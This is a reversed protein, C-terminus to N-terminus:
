LFLTCVTIFVLIADHYALRKTPSVCTSSIPMTFWVYVGQFYENVVDKDSPSTWDFVTMGVYISICLIMLHYCFPFRVSEELGVWSFSCILIISILSIVFYFFSAVTFLLRDFKFCAFMMWLWVNIRIVDWDNLCYDDVAPAYLVISTCSGHSWAYISVM